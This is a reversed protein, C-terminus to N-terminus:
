QSSLDKILGGTPIPDRALHWEKPNPTMALQEQRGQAMHPRGQGRAVVKDKDRLGCVDDSYGCNARWLWKDLEASDESDPLHLAPVHLRM